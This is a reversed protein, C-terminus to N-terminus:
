IREVDVVRLRIRKQMAGNDDLAMLYAECNEDLGVVAENPELSPDLQDILERIDM